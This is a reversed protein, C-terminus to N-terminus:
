RGGMFWYGHYIHQRMSDFRDDHEDQYEQAFEPACGNRRLGQNLWDQEMRTTGSERKGRVAAWGASLPLPRPMEYRDLKYLPVPVIRARGRTTRGCRIVTDTRILQMDPVGPVIEGRHLHEHDERLRWLDPTM